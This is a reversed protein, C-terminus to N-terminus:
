NKYPLFQEYVSWAPDRVGIVQVEHSTVAAQLQHHFAGIWNADRAYLVFERMGSTTLVAVLAARSAVADIEKFRIGLTEGYLRRSATAERVVPGFGAIFLVRLDRFDNM